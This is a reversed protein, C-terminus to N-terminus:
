RFGVSSALATSPRSYKWPYDLGTDMSAYRWTMSDSGSAMRSSEPPPIMRAAFWPTARRSPSSARPSSPRRSASMTPSSGSATARYRRRQERLRSATRAESRKSPSPPRSTAQRPSPATSRGRESPESARRRKRSIGFAADILRNRARFSRISARERSPGPAVVERDSKHWWRGILGPYDPSFVADREPPRRSYLSRSAARRRAM